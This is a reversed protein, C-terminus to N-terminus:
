PSAPHGARSYCPNDTEFDLTQDIMPSEKKYRIRLRSEQSPLAAFTIGVLERCGDSTFTRSSSAAIGPIWQDGQLVSFQDANRRNNGVLRTTFWVVLAPQESRYENILPPPGLTRHLFPKNWKRLPEFMTGGIRVHANKEYTVTALRIEGGDPLPRWDERDTYPRIVLGAAFAVLLALPLRLRRM